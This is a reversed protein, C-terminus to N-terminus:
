TSMVVVAAAAMEAQAPAEQVIRDGLVGRGRLLSLVPDVAVWYLLV